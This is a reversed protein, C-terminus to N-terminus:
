ISIVIVNKNPSSIELLGQYQSLVKRFEGLILNKEKLKSESTLRMLKSGNRLLISKIPNSPNDIFPVKIVLYENVNKLTLHSM